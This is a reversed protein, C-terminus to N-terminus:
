WLLALNARVWDVVESIGRSLPVASPQAGLLGVLRDPSLLKDRAGIRAGPDFSVSAYPYEAARCIEEAVEAISFSRQTTVNVVVRSAGQVLDRTIRVADHVHVLERRETGDGFLTVPEGFEAGRVVKRAIDYVFHLDRGDTHYGPGYLTSPVLYLWDLGFQDGLTQMGVLLMRKTMAYAYYAAPPSGSLYDVERHVGASGYSASTGFSVLKAEPQDSRWWDLVNTNIRQNVVWQEGPREQCFRGARTWAALHFIVSYRKGDLAGLGDHNTLDIASSPPAEVDHGDAVLAPVLHRGLFGSGGTVFVNV